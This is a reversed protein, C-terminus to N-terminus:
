TYRKGLVKRVGWNFLVYFRYASGENQSHDYLDVDVDVIRLLLLFSAKPAHLLLALAGASKKFTVILIRM